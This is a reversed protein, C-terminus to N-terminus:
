KAMKEKYYEERGRRRLHKEIEVVCDPGWCYRVNNEECPCKFCKGGTLDYIRQAALTLARANITKM